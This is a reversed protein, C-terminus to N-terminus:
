GERLELGEGNVLLTKGDALVVCSVWKGVIKFSDPLKVGDLSGHGKLAKELLRRVAPPTQRYAKFPPPEFGAKKLSEALASYAEELVPKRGRAV